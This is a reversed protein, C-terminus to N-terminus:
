QVVGAPAALALTRPGSVDILALRPGAPGAQALAGDLLRKRADFAVLQPGELASGAPVRASKPNVRVGNEIVEFHVHPGTSEGTSGSYAIVQGQRVHEGPRAAWRSLHGYATEWGGAHRLKIWRGYGGAWRAQEVVGDGAALVPTGTPVAFDVGQHMRTYGLIPHMRLGFGSSIRAGYVPTRLLFGKISKGDQDYFDAQAAGEPQYRYVRTVQGKAAIEAYDLAAARVVRGSQTLQRDYVLRFRDGNRLDRSFDLKHAFLKVVETTVAAPAGAAVASQYLSGTVAGEAVVTDDHVAEDQRRLMLAGDFTRSLTILSAPGTRLSLSILRAAGRRDRAPAVAADFVLGAKINVTDIAKSLAGVVQHADDSTVGARRVAAELTEGTQVKVPVTIAPPTATRPETVGATLAPSTAGGHGADALRWGVAILTLGALGALVLRPARRVRLRRPDFEQM